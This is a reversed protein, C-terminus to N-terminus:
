KSTIEQPLTVEGKLDIQDSSSGVLVEFKGAHARWQKSATDYYEFSRSNLEISVRRTEGPKLVM